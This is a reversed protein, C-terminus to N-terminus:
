QHRSAKNRLQSHLAYHTLEKQTEPLKQQKEKQFIEMKKQDEIEM